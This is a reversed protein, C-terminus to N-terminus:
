DFEVYGRREMEVKKHARNKIKLGFGGEGDSVYESGPFTKMALPLQDGAIGMATSVREHDGCDTNVLEASIDRKARGECYHCKTTKTPKPYHTYIELNAGCGCKYCYIPM